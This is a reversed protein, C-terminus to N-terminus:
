PGLAMKCSNKHAKSWKAHEKTKESGSGTQKDRKSGNGVAGAGKLASKKVERARKM